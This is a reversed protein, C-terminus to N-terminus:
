VALVRQETVPHRRLLACSTGALVTLAVDALAYASGAPHLPWAWPEPRGDPNWGTASCLLPVVALAAAAPRHGVLPHLLLALGLYGATDRAIVLTLDGQGAAYALAGVATGTVAVGLTLAVDWGRLFRGAVTETRLDGRGLGYLLFVAPILTIVHAVLFHGARGRLAPVPLEGDGLLLGLAFTGALAATVAPVARAKCWWIM